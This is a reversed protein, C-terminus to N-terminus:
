LDADFPESELGNSTPFLIQSKSLDLVIGSPGNGDFTDINWNSQLVRTEVVSGTVYSRQVLYVNSDALELFFGNQSNFYGVRQILNVVPSNMVFSNMALLSKGPQYPFVRYSQRLVESGSASGVTLFMTSQDANFTGTSSAGTSYTDFKGNDKYIMSSDFLTFPNSVRLRQFADFNSATFDNTVPLGNLAGTINDVILSVFHGTGNVDMLYNPANTNFGLNGGTFFYNNISNPQVNFVSVPGSAGFQNQYFLKDQLQYMTIGSGPNISGVQYYPAAFGGVSSMLGNNNIELAGSQGVLISGTSVYISKFPYEYSGIDSNLNTTQIGGNVILTSNSSTLTANGISISGTGVYLHNYRLDPTGLTYVDDSQPILSHTYGTGSLTLQNTTYDFILNSSGTSSGNQNFIIQTNSGGITGSSSTFPLGNLFYGGTVNLSGNVFQTVSM